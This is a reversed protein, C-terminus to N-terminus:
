SWVPIQVNHGDPWLRDLAESLVNLPLDFPIPIVISRARGYAVKPLLKFNKEGWGHKEDYFKQSNINKEIEKRRKRLIQLLNEPKGEWSYVTHNKGTPISYIAYNYGKVMKRSGWSQELYDQIKKVTM